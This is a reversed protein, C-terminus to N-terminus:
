VDLSVRRFLGVRWFEQCGSLGGPRIGSSHCGALAGRSAAPRSRVAGESRAYRASHGTVPVSAIGPARVGRNAQQEHGPGATRRRLKAQDPSCGRLRSSALLEGPRPRSPREGGLEVVFGGVPRPGETSRTASCAFRQPGRTLSRRLRVIESSDCAETRTTARTQAAHASRPAGPRQDWRVKRQCPFDRRSRPASAAVNRAAGLADAAAGWGRVDSSPAPGGVAGDKM